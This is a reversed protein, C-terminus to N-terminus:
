NTTVVVTENFEEVHVVEPNCKGTTWKQAKKRRPNKECGHEKDLLHFIWGEDSNEVLGECLPCVTANTEESPDVCEDAKLHKTIKKLPIALQCHPCMAMQSKHECSELKHKTLEPILIKNDCLDCKKLMPCEQYLHYNMEDVLNPKGCFPCSQVVNKPWKRRDKGLGDKGVLEYGESELVVGLIRLNKWYKGEKRLPIVEKAAVAETALSRRSEDEALVVPKESMVLVADTDKKGKDDVREVRATERDIISLISFTKQSDLENPIRAKMSDTM